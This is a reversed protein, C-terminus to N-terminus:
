ASEAVRMIEATKMMRRKRMALHLGLLPWRIMRTKNVLKDGRYLEIVIKRLWIVDCDRYINWRYM